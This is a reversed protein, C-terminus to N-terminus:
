CFIGKEVCEALVHLIKSHLDQVDPTEKKPVAIVHDSIEMIREHYKGKNMGCLYGTILGYKKAKKLGLYVNTSNGSTSLGVAVGSVDAYSQVLREFINDYGVDNAIATLASTHATLSIAPIGPRKKLTFSGLLEGVFHDAQTASGGNGFWLSAKKNYYCNVLANALDIVGEYGDLRDEFPGLRQKVIREILRMREEETLHIKSM